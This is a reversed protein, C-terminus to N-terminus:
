YLQGRIYQYKSKFGRLTEGEFNIIRLTEREGIRNYVDKVADYGIRQGYEALRILNEDVGLEAALEQYNHIGKRKVFRNLQKIRFKM